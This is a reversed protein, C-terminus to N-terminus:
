AFIAPSQLLRPAQTIQIERRTPPPPEEDACYALHHHHSSAAEDEDEAAFIPTDGIDAFISIRGLRGPARLSSPFLFSQTMFRPYVRAFGKRASEVAFIRDIQMKILKYTTTKNM